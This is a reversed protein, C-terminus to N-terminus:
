GDGRTQTTPRGTGPEGYIDRLVPMLEYQAVDLYYKMGGGTCGDEGCNEHAADYMAEAFLEAVEALVQKRQAILREFVRMTDPEPCPLYSCTLHNGAGLFITEGCGNPCRGPVRRDDHTTM